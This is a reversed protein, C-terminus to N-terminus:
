RGPMAAAARLLDHVANRAADIGQSTDIVCHARRRKDRDPMQRALIAAFKEATMGPRALVRAKQVPEPASVVVVLDVLHGSGGELLLPIDLVVACAGAKRAGDLFAEREAAVLPHVIKELDRMADPNGLVHTSLRARDIAGNVTVGPFRAEIPAVAKGAYLAHVTADADNVPVGAERFLDATTSKGMGISGTLGIVLM